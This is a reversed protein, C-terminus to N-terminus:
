SAAEKKSTKRNRRRRNLALVLSQMDFDAEPFTQTFVSTGTPEAPPPVSVPAASDIEIVIVRYSKSM